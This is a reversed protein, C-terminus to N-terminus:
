KPIEFTMICKDYVGCVQQCAKDVRSSNCWWTGEKVVNLSLFVMTWLDDAEEQPDRPPFMCNYFANREHFCYDPKDPPALVIILVILIICIVIGMQLMFKTRRSQSEGKQRPSQPQTSPLPSESEVILDVVVHEVVDEETQEQSTLVLEPDVILDESMISKLM